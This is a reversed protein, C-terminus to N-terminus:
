LDQAPGRNTRQWTSNSQGWLYRWFGGLFAAHIAVMFYGFLAFPTRQLKQRFIFGIGAWLYFLVQCLFFMRYLSQNLLFVNSVLMGIMLFSLIWRLVKHSILALGFFNALPLGSVLPLARFSGVALRVRRIYEDKVSTASFETAIAESDSLVRYGMKRANLPIIFDDIIDGPEL